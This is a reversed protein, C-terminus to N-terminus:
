PRRVIDGKQYGSGTTASAISSKEKVETVTITGVKMTEVDIVEGTDPDRIEQGVRLVELKEGVELGSGQGLNLYIKSDSVVAAVKGELPPVWTGTSPEIDEADAVIEAALNDISKALVKSAIGSDYNKGFGSGAFMGRGFKQKGEAEYANIIEATTTDILRATLSAKSSVMKGGIGGGWKWKGVQPVAGGWDSIGFETVSGTIILQVGLLKGFKVATAPDIDGSMSLNQEKMVLNLKEREIVSFKGSKVLETVLNDAAATQLQTYSWGYPWSGHLASTDFDMVAVRVKAKETDTESFGVAAALLLIVICASVRKM